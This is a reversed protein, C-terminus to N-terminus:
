SLRKMRAMFFGDMHDRPPYTTIMGDIAQPAGKYSVPDIIFNKHIALFKNLVAENEGSNMTCTSYVLYGNVKVMESAKELIELQLPPLEILLSETKRWRMDLKKQLIGLGSCPADVLVRDFQEKWNDPLYRGDQLKTSIISVGLREANQNILELKHDYIDCSMIAGTNNMLSAMHMSKGGPAACCDLILEGPQPDVVHAVLMSAKDMFTIHGDLVPKAKELHGQHGDIYVVEPIYTDQEVIWDLDELEKLCDEISVKVTNIRATLRPQENFWSCLDVTKDKGMEKIWLNVLWLPQNYIFSIEEAESKALEGISISDSERLVSRLVANVFGSLGRTLKKALKVSENVAASEPVKDM